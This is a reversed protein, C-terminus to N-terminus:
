QRLKSSLTLFSIVHLNPRPCGGRLFGLDSGETRRSFERWSGCIFQIRYRAKLHKCTPSAPQVSSIRPIPLKTPRASSHQSSLTRSLLLTHSSSDAPEPRARSCESLWTLIFLCLKEERLHVPTQAPPNSTPSPHCSPNELCMWPVRTHTINKYIRNARGSTIVM